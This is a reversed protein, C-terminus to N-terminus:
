DAGPRLRRFLYQARHRRVRCERKAGAEGPAADPGPECREAKTGRRGCACRHRWCRLRRRLRYQGHRRLPRLLFAMSSWGGFGLIFVFLVAVLVVQGKKETGLPIAM